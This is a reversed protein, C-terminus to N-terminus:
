RDVRALPCPLATAIDDPTTIFPPPPLPASTQDLPVLRAASSDFKVSKSRNSFLNRINDSRVGSCNFDWEM